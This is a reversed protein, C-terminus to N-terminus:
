LSSLSSANAKTGLQADTYTLTAYNSLASTDAKLALTDRTNDYGTTDDFVKNYILNVLCFLRNFKATDGFTSTPCDNALPAGLAGTIFSMVFATLVLKKFRLM